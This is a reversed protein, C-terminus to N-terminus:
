SVTHAVPGGFAVVKLIPQKASLAYRSEVFEVPHNIPLRVVEKYIKDPNRARRRGTEPDLGRRSDKVFTTTVIELFKNTGGNTKAEAFVALTSIVLLITSQVRFRM